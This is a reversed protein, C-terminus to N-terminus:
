YNFEEKLRSFRVGFTEEGTQKSPDSDDNVDAPNAGPKKELEKELVTIRSNATQLDTELQTKARNATQLDTEAKTRANQATRMNTNATNLATEIASLQEETFSSYGDADVAIESMGLAALLFTFKNMSINNNSNTKNAIEAVRNVTYQLTGIADVLIGMVERAEWTKGTLHEAKVKPRNAKIDAKFQENHPNLVREKILKFNGTIANEFEGNKDDAGDAYVRVHTIGNEDKIFKEFDEFAIM